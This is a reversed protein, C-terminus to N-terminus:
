SSIRLSKKSVTRHSLAEKVRKVVDAPQEDLQKSSVQFVRWGLATLRQTRLRDTEFAERTGHHEFGDCEIAIGEDPYAIDIRGPQGHDDRFEYGGRPTPMGAKRLLHWMRVELASELAKERNACDALIEALAAASRGRVGLDKLRRQVWDPPAVKLRWAEEVVIALQDEDLCSALDIITRAGNTMPIKSHKRRDDETLEDSRHCIVGKITRAKHRGTTVEPLKRELNLGLLRAASRHSVLTGEGLWLCLAVLEQEETQNKAARRFVRPRVEEWVKRKVLRSLKMRNVGASTAQAHTMLGYQKTSLAVLESFTQPSAEETPETVSKKM